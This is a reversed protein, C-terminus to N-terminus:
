QAGKKTTDKVKNKDNRFIRNLNTSGQGGENQLNFVGDRVKVNKLKFETNKLDASELSVSLLKCALLTDSQGFNQKLSDLLQSKETSVIAFDEVIIRNFFVFHVKGISMKGDIKDSVSEM